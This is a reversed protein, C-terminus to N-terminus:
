LQCPLCVPKHQEMAVNRAINLAFNTKGMGPRSALIIFDGPHFGTTMEDLKEFGSLVCM